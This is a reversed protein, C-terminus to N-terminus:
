FKEFEEMVVIKHRSENAALFSNLEPDLVDSASQFGGCDLECAKIKFYDRIQTIMESKGHGPPGTLL